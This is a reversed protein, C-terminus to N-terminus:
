RRRDKKGDDMNQHKGLRFRWLPCTGPARSEYILVNGTSMEEGSPYGVVMQFEIHEFSFEDNKKWIRSEIRRPQHFWFKSMMLTGFGLTRRLEKEMLWWILDTM